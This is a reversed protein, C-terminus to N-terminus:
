VRKAVWYGGLSDRLLMENTMPLFKGQERDFVPVQQVFTVAQETVAQRVAQVDVDTTQVPVEAVFAEVVKDTTATAKMVRNVPVVKNGVKRRRAMQPFTVWSTARKPDYQYVGRRIRHVHPYAEPSHILGRLAGNVAIVTYEPLLAQIEASTMPVAMTSLVEYVKSRVAREGTVPNIGAPFMQSM